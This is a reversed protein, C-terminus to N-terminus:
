NRPPWCRKSVGGAAGSDKTVLLDIRYEQLLRRNFAQSFAAQLCMVREPSFGAALAQELSLPSPLVRAFLNSGITFSRFISSSGRALRSCSGVVLGPVMAAATPLVDRCVANRGPPTWDAREFRVYPQGVARLVDAIATM